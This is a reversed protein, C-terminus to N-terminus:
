RLGKGLGGVMAPAQGRMSWLLVQALRLLFYPCNALEWQTDLPLTRLYMHEYSVHDIDDVHDLNDIYLHMLRFGGLAEAM